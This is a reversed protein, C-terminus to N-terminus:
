PATCNSCQHGRINIYKMLKCVGAGEFTMVDFNVFSALAYDRYLDTPNSQFDCTVRWHTSHTKLHSKQSHTMRYANWNPTESSVPADYKFATTSFQAMHKNGLKFSEVLTWASGPESEM